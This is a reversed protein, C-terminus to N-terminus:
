RALRRAVYARLSKLAAFSCKALAPILRLSPEFHTHLATRAPGAIMLSFCTLIRSSCFIFFLSVASATLIKQRLTKPKCILNQGRRYKSKNSIAPEIKAQEKSKNEHEIQSPDNKRGKQAKGYLDFIEHSINLLISALLTRLLLLLLLPFFLRLLALQM